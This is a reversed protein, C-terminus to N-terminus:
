IRYFFSFVAQFLFYFKWCFNLIIINDILVFLTEKKKKANIIGSAAFLGENKM